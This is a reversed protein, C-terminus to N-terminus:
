LLYFSGYAEGEVKNKYFASPPIAAVGVETTLYRCFAVDNEFDLESIDVMVFYTGKPQITPFGAAELGPLLIDRKKQYMESLQTYYGTKAAEQLAYAAAAQLPHIGSFTAFQYIRMIATTIEPSAVTWGTKWGTVSFTKGLSSIQVTREAMGDLCAMSHHKEGDFLIHEYAGDVVAVVNYKLCLDAILQMEALSFVKGTPNHPTNIMILKTKDNFLTELSM